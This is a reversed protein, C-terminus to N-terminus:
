NRWDRVLGPVVLLGLVIGVVAGGLAGFAPSQFFVGVGAGTSTCFFISSLM